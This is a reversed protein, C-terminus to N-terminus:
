TNLNHRIKLRVCPTHNSVAMYSRGQFQADKLFRANSLRSLKHSQLRSLSSIGTPRLVRRLEDHCLRAPGCDRCRGTGHQACDRPQSGSAELGQWTSKEQLDCPGGSLRSRLSLLFSHASSIVRDWFYCVIM